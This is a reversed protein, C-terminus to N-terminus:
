RFTVLVGSWASHTSSTHTATMTQTSSLIRYGDTIAVTVAFITTSANQGGATFGSGWAGSQAGAYLFGFVAAAYEKAVSTTPTAGTSPSTVLGSADASQDPGNGALNLIYEANICVAGQDLGSDMVVDLNGTGGASVNMSYILTIIHVGGSSVDNADACPLLANGKWTVSTLVPASNNLAALIKVVLCAGTPVTASAIRATIVGASNDANAGLPVRILAAGSSSSPSSSRSSSASSPLSVASSPSSTAVPCCTTAYIPIPSADGPGQFAGVLRSDYLAYTLPLGNPEFVWVKVRDRFTLAGSYQQLQAPYVTIGSQVIGPATVRVIDPLVPYIPNSPGFDPAQTNASDM